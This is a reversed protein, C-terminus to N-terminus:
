SSRENVNTVLVGGAATSIRWAILILLPEASGLRVFTPVMVWCCSRSMASRLSWSRLAWSTSCAALIMAPVAREIPTSTAEHAVSAAVGVLEPLDVAFALVLGGLRHREDGLQGARLEVLRDLHVDAGAEVDAVGVLLQAAGDGQGVPDAFVDLDGDEGLAVGGAFGLLGAGVVDAALVEGLLDALAEVVEVHRDGRRVHHGDDALEPADESGGPLHGVRFDARDGGVDGFGDCSDFDPFISYRVSRLAM